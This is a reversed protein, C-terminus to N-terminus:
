LDEKTYKRNHIDVISMKFFNSAATYSPVLDADRM